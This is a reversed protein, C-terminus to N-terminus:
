PKGRSRGGVATAGDGAADSACSAVATDDLIVTRWVNAGEAEDSSAAEWERRGQDAQDAGSRDLDFKVQGANQITDLINAEDMKAQVMQIVDENTLPAAEAGGEPAAGGVGRTGAGSPGGGAAGGGTPVSYHALATRIRDQPKLFYKEEPRDAIAKGYDISAEQLYKIAAKNDQAQYALAENAVGINYLRYAEERPDPYSGMTELEELARAWLNSLALKNASDLSGGVALMAEVVESTNVLYAAIQRSVDAVLANEADMTSTIKPADPAPQKNRHFPDTLNYKLMGNQEVDQSIQSSAVGSAIVHGSRPETIRFTVGMAGSINNTTVKNQTTSKMAPKGYSTIQCQILVDPSVAQVRVASDSRTLLNEIETQLEASMPQMPAVAVGVSRGNISTVPPLRRQLDVKKRQLFNGFSPSGTPAALSPLTGLLLAIVVGLRPFVVPRFRM